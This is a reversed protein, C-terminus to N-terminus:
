RPARVPGAPTLRGDRGLRHRPRGALAAVDIAGTHAAREDGRDLVLKRYRPPWHLLLRRGCTPCWWEEAGTAWRETRRMRHQAQM